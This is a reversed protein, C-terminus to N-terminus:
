QWRSRHRRPPTAAAPSLGVPAADSSATRGPLVTILIRAARRVRMVERCRNGVDDSIAFGPSSSLVPRQKSVTTQDVFVALAASVKVGSTKGFCEAVVTVTFAPAEIVEAAFSRFRVAVAGCQLETIDAAHPRHSDPMGAIATVLGSHTEM